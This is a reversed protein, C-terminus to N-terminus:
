FPFTPAIIAGGRQPIVNVSFTKETPLGMFGDHVLASLFHGLAAGALAPWSMRSTILM